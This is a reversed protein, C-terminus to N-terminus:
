FRYKVNFSVFDRDALPRLAPDASGLFANYAVGLELNSLYRFTLGASLRKDGKGTLSGFSGAVAPVGRVLHQFTIPMDMDWGGFVNTYSLTPGVVYGWSSRTAALSNYSAPGMMVADVSSVRHTGIEAVLIMSDSLPTKEIAKIASIQAQWSKSRSATPGAPTNVLVPAGDRMSAEGALSIGFVQTSFTAGALRIGDFYKVQYSVPLFQYAPPLALSTIAPIQAAPLGPYLTAVGFNTQVTPNKDHYRLYYLGVETKAEPRFRVGVGYQGSNGPRIDAGRTAALMMPLGPLAATAPNALLPNAMTYIRDGGPGIMDAYSFYTGAPSIETPKYKYQYYALVSFSPTVAFQASVQGTPLLIDKVEAGAVNAKTADAPAQAGAINPFYLAEGWQVVQQGARLNLKSEGFVFAGYAYVDLMRARRGAYDRAGKTFERPDGSKNVTGPSNNDNSSNYVDDYFMSARAFLGYNRYKLDSELLASVRNETLSRRKFNRDGDDSNITSSLGAAGVPGNVLVSAPANLRMAAGYNVTANFDLTADDGLTVTPAAMAPACALLFVASAISRMKCPPATMTVRNM